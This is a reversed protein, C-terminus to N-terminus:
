MYVYRGYNMTINIAITKKRKREREGEREREREIQEVSSQNVISISPHHHCFSPTSIGHRVPVFKNNYFEFTQKYVYESSSNDRMQISM